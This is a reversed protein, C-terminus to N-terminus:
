HKNINQYISSFFIFRINGNKNVGSVFAMKNGNRDNRESVQTIEAVTTVLQGDSYNDLPKVDYKDYPAKTIYFGFCEKEYVYNPTKYKEGTMEFMLKNRDTTDFDFAGAKILAIVTNSKVDKPVRRKMFDDFSKIPRMNVISKYASEGVGNIATLAFMIKNGHITFNNSGINIDPTVLSIEAKEVLERIKNLTEAFWPSASVSLLILSNTSFAPILRTVGSIFM